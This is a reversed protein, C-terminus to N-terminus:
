LFVGAAEILWSPIYVLVPLRGIGPRGVTFSAIFASRNYIGM